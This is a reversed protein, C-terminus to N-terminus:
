AEERSYYLAALRRLPLGLCDAYGKRFQVHPESLLREWKSVASRCTGVKQAIDELTLGKSIRLRKLKPQVPSKPQKM